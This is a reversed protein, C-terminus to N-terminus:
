YIGLDEAKAWGRYDIPEKVYWFGNDVNGLIVKAGAKIEGVDSFLESPGEKLPVDKLAVAYRLGDLHWYMLGFLVLNIAYATLWYQIKRNKLKLYIAIAIVGFLLGFSWPGTYEFICDIKGLPSSREWLSPIELKQVVYNLNNKVKTDFGTLKNSKELHFRAVAFDNKKAYITGLNFHFQSSSFQEKSEIIKEVLTKWNEKLYLDRLEQPLNVVDSNM